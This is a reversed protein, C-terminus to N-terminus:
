PHHKPIDSPNARIAIFHPMHPQIVGLMKVTAERDLKVRYSKREKYVEAKWDLLKFYEMVIESGEEGWIHTNFVAQGDQMKGTDCWWTMLGIDVLGEINELKLRRKKDKYFEERFENFIPYCLSHWRMTGNKDETYPDVSAFKSLETAKWKLWLADKSRMSLYCNRGRTPKVISSGGLITGTLVQTERQNHKPDIVHTM